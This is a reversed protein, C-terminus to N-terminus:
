TRPEQDTAPQEATGGTRQARIQLMLRHTMMIPVGVFTILRLLQFWWSDGSNGTIVRVCSLVLVISLASMYGLLHKSMTSRRDFVRLHVIVSAVGVAAAWFLFVTGATTLVAQYEIM